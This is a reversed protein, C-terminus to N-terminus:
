LDVVLITIAKAPDQRDAAFLKLYRGLMELNRSKDALKVKKLFGYAHKQNGTGDFIESM